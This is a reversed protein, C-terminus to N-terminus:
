RRADVKAKLNIYIDQNNVDNFFAVVDDISMGITDGGNLLYKGSKRVIARISLCDFIFARIEFNPDGIIDIFEQPNSEIFENIESEIFDVTSSDDVKKGVIKLFSRQSDANLKGFIKYADRKIKFKDNRLKAQKETDCILFRYMPASDSLLDDESNAVDPHALLNKYTIEDQPNETELELGNRDIRITSRFDGWYERNYPSLTGKPLLLIAELRAEDDPTLGTLLKRSQSDFPVCLYEACGTYRVEGDHGEPLWTKTIQKVHVKMERKNYQQAWLLFRVEAQRICILREAM